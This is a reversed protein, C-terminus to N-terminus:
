RAPATVGPSCPTRDDRPHEPPTRPAARRGARPPRHRTIMTKRLSEGTPRAPPVRRAATLRIKVSRRVIEPTLGRGPEDARDGGDRLPGAGRRPQRVPPAPRRQLGRGRGRRDHP